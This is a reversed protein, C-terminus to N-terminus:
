PYKPMEKQAVMFQKTLTQINYKTPNKDVPIPTHTAQEIPPLPEFPTGLEPWSHQFDLNYYLGVAKLGSVSDALINAIGKLTNYKWIDPSPLAELHWANCKEEDTNGM